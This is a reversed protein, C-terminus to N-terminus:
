RRRRAVSTKMPRSTFLFLRQLLGAEALSVVNGLDPGQERWLKLHGSRQGALDQHWYFSIQFRACFGSTRFRAENVQLLAAVGGGHDHGGDPRAVCVHHSCARCREHTAHRGVPSSKRESLSFSHGQHSRVETCNQMALSKARALVM